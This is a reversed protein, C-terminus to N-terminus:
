KATTQHAIIRAVEAPHVATTDITLDALERLWTEAAEYAALHELRWARADADIPDSEIRRRLEETPAHLVINRVRIDRQRFGDAIEQFYGQESITMPVVIPGGDRRDLVRATEVVLQRWEPLDQFDGTSVPVISQLMVGVLEPDFVTAGPWFTRLEEAVTTKGAGFAGHLWVIM